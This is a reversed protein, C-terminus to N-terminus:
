MGRIHSIWRGPLDKGRGDPIASPLVIRYAMLSWTLGTRKAGRNQLWNGMVLRLTSDLGSKRPARSLQPPSARPELYPTDQVLTSGTILQQCGREYARYMGLIASPDRRICKIGGFSQDHEGTLRATRGSPLCTQQLISFTNFPNEMGLKNGGTLHALRSFPRFRTAARKAAICRWLV